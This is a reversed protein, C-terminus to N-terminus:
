FNHSNMHLCCFLPFSENSSINFSIALYFGKNIKKQKFTHAFPFFALKLEIRKKFIRNRVKMCKRRYLSGAVCFKLGHKKSLRGLCVKNRLEGLVFVVKMRSFVEQAFLISIVLLIQKSVQQM